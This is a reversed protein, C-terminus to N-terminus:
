WVISVFGSGGAGGAGRYGPTGQGGAGITITITQGAVCRLPIGLAWGGSAGGPGAYHDQGGGGAGGGGRYGAQGTAYTAVGTGGYGFPGWGGDGGKAISGTSGGGDWGESQGYHMGGQGFPGTGGLGHDFGPAVYRYRGGNALGDWYWGAIIHWRSATYLSVYAGGDSDPDSIKAPANYGDSRILSIGGHFRLIEYSTQVQSYGGKNASVSPQGGAGPVGVPLTGGDGGGIGGQGGGIGSVWIRDVGDPLDFTTSSTFEAYGNSAQLETDVYYKSAAHPNSTPTLPVNLQGTMTDGSANIYTNDCYQKNPIDDPDTVLTEYNLASNVSITGNPEIRVKEVQNTTFNIYGDGQTYIGTDQVGDLRFVISPNVATGNEIFIQANNTMTLDGTMTDGAKEVMLDFQDQVSGLGTNLGILANVETSTLTPLNLGDLFTNQLATLHLGDDAIHADLEVQLEYGVKVWGAAKYEYTHDDTTNFWRMGLPPTTIGNGTGLDREDKPLMISPPSGTAVYSGTGPVFGNAEDTGPLFDGDEKQPCAWGELLRFLNQNVGEGWKLVGYGYLELDSERAIGDPGNLEGPGIVFSNAENESLTGNIDDFSSYKIYYTESM